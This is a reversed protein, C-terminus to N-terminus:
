NYARKDSRPYSHPKITNQAYYMTLFNRAENEDNELQNAWAIPINFCFHSLNGAIRKDKIYIQKKNSKAFRQIEHYNDEEKFYANDLWENLTYQHLPKLGFGKQYNKGSWNRGWYKHTCAYPLKNQNEM